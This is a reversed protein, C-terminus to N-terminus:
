EPRSSRSRITIGSLAKMYAENAREFAMQAAQVTQKQSELDKVPTNKTEMQAHYKGLESNYRSWAADPIAKLQELDGRM